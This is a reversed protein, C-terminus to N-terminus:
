SSWQHDTRRPSGLCVCSYTLGFVEKKFKKKGINLGPDEFITLVLCWDPDLSVWSTPGPFSSMGRSTGVRLAMMCCPNSILSLDYSSCPVPMWTYFFIDTSSTGRILECHCLDVALNLGGAVILSLLRLILTTLIHFLTSYNTLPLAVFASTFFTSSRNSSNSSM